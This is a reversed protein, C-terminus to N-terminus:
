ATLFHALLVLGFALDGYITTRDAGRAFFTRAAAMLGDRNPRTVEKPFNADILPLLLRANEIVREGATIQM